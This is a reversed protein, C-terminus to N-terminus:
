DVDLPHQSVYQRARHLKIYGAHELARVTAASQLLKDMKVLRTEMAELREGLAVVLGYLESDPM